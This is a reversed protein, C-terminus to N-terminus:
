NTQHLWFLYGVVDREHVIGTCGGYEDVVVVSKVPHQSFLDYLKDLTNAEPYYLVEQILDKSIKKKKPSNFIEVCDILGVINDVRDEYVTLYEKKSKSIEQSLTSLDQEKRVFYLDVLPTMIESVKTNSLNTLTQLFTIEEQKMLGDELAAELLLHIDDKSLRQPKKLQIFPYIWLSSIKTILYVVPSFLTKFILLSTGIHYMLENAYKKFLAKPLVEGFVLFIAMSSATFLWLSAEHTVLRWLHEGVTVAAINALNNGLLTVGLVLEMNNVLPKLAHLNTRRRKKDQDHLDQEYQELNLGVFGTESGSFYFSLLVLSIYILILSLLLIM